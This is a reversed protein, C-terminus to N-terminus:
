RLQETLWHGIASFCDEIIGYDDSPVRIILPGEVYPCLDSTVLAAPVGQAPAQVLVQRINKSAGSCSLAIVRDKPQALRYFEASLAMNYNTDNAWATLVASNCGLAIARKGAAKSLDCAWHQAIVASGGNGCLWLTGECAAVFPLLPSSDLASLASLAAALRDFYTM